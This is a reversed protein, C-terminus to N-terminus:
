KISSVNPGMKYLIFLRVKETTNSTNINNNNINVNTNTIIDKSIFLESPIWVIDPNMLDKETKFADVLVRLLPSMFIYSFTLLIAYIALLPIITRFLKIAKDYFRIFKPSTFREKVSAFSDKLLYALKEM